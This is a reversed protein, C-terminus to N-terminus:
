ADTPEVSIRTFSIPNDSYVSGDQSIGVRVLAMLKTYYRRNISVKYEVRDSYAIATACAGSDFIGDDFGEDMIKLGNFWASEYEKYTGNYYSAYLKVHMRVKADECFFPSIPFNPWWNNDARTMQISSVISPNYVTINLYRFPTPVVYTPWEYAFTAYRNGYNVDSALDYTFDPYSASPLRIPNGNFVSFNLGAAHAYKANAYLLERSYVQTYLANSLSSVNNYNLISSIELTNSGSFYVFSSTTVDLGNSYNGLSDVGDNMNNLVGPLELRPLLSLVRRGYTNVTSNFSSIYHPFSALDMFLSSIQCYTTLNTYPRPNAPTLTAQIGVVSDPDSPDTYVPETAYVSLSSLRLPTNQPIPTAVVPVAGNYIYFNTSYPILPGANSGLWRLAGTAVNSFMYHNAFNQGSLDYYILTSPIPTFLGSIATTSMIQTTSIGFTSPLNDPESRFQYLATSLSQRLVPVTPSIIQTNSLRVNMDYLNISTTSVPQQGDITAKYFFQQYLPDSQTDMVNVRLITSNNITSMITSMNVDYRDSAINVTAQTTMFPQTADRYSFAVSVTSRDGPYSVHNYQPPMNLRYVLLSTSRYDTYLIDSDVATASSVKGGAGFYMTRISSATAYRTITSALNEIYTTSIVPPINTSPFLTSVYPTSSKTGPLRASNNAIISTSWIVGPGLPRAITGTLVTSQTSTICQYSKMYTATSYPVLPGPTEASNLVGYRFGFNNNHSVNLRNFNYEINYSSIYITSVENISDSYLPHTILYTLTNQSADIPEVQALVGPGGTSAQITSTVCINATQDAANLYIIKVPVATDKPYVNVLDPLYISLTTYTDSGDTNEIALVNGQSPFNVDGEENLITVCNAPLQAKTSILNYDAPPFFDTFIRLRVIPTNIPSIGDAYNRYPFYVPNTITFSLYDSSAPDGVIIMLTNVYPISKDLCAYTNFNQWRIGGYLSNSEAAVPTVAPPQFLFANALWADLKGLANTITDPTPATVGNIGPGGITPSTFQTINTSFPACLSSVFGVQVESYRVTGNVDAQFAKLLNSHQPVPEFAEYTRANPFALQRINGDQIRGIVTFALSTSPLDPFDSPDWPASPDAFLLQGSSLMVHNANYSAM